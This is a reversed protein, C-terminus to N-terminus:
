DCHLHVEIWGPRRDGPVCGVDGGILGEQYPTSREIDDWPCIWSGSGVIPELREETDLRNCIM